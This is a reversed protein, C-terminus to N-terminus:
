AETRPTRPAPRWASPWDVEDTASGPVGISSRASEVYQRRAERFEQYAQDWNQEVEATVGRALHHTLQVM